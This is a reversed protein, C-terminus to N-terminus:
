DEHADAEMARRLITNMRTQYRPGAKKLWALVDADLYTTVRQKPVAPTNAVRRATAFFADDLEPSDAYTQRGALAEILQREESTM